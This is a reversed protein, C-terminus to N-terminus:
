FPPTQLQTHLCMDKNGASQSATFKLGAWDTTFQLGAWAVYHTRTMFLLCVFLFYPNPHMHSQLQTSAWDAWPGPNLRYYMCKYAYTNRQARTCECMCVTCLNGASVCDWSWWQQCRQAYGEASMEACCVCYDLFGWFNPWLICVM